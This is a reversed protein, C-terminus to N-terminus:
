DVSLQASGLPAAPARKRARAKAAAPSLRLLGLACWFLLTLVGGVLVETARPKSRAPILIHRSGVPYAIPVPREAATM